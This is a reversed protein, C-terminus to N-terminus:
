FHYSKLSKLDAWKSDDSSMGVDVNCVQHLLFTYIQNISFNDIRSNRVKIERPISVTYLQIIQPMQQCTSLFMAVKSYSSWLYSSAQECRM